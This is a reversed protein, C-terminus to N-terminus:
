QGDGKQAALAARKAEAVTMGSRRVRDHAYLLNSTFDDEADEPRPRRKPDSDADLGVSGPAATNTQRLSRGFAADFMQELADQVKARDAFAAKAWEGRDRMEKFITAFLEGTARRAAEPVKPLEANLYARAMQEARTSQSTARDAFERDRERLENYERQLRTLIV